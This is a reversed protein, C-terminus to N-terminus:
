DLKISITSFAGKEDSLKLTYDGTGLGALSIFGNNLSNITEVCRDQQYLAAEFVTPIRGIEDIVRVNIDAVRNEKKVIELHVTCKGAAKYFSIRQGTDRYAFAPSGVKWEPISEVLELAKEKIRVWFGSEKKDDQRPYFRNLVKKVLEAPTPEPPSALFNQGAYVENINEALWTKEEGSLKAAKLGKEILIGAKEPPIEKLTKKGFM